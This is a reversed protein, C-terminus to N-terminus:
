CDGTELHEVVHGCGHGITLLFNITQVLNKNNFSSFYLTTM